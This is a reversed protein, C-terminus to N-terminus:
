LITNIYYLKMFQLRRFPFHIYFKTNPLLPITHKRFSLYLIHYLPAQSSFYSSLFKNTQTSASANRTELHGWFPSGSGKKLLYSSEHELMEKRWTVSNQKKRSVDRSRERHPQLSTRYDKRAYDERLTSFRLRYRRFVLVTHYSSYHSLQWCYQKILKAQFQVPYRVHVNQLM